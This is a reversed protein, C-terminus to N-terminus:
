KSEVVLTVAATTEFQVNNFKGRARLTCPHQGAPVGDAAAIELKGGDQGKNLTVNPATLGAVGQPPSLTLEVQDAFGYLREIKVPMEQKGGSKLGLSNKEPTLKLPSANVRLKIPTSILAFAVDKPQNAKKADDARKDCQTKLQNAEKLKEQAAKLAAENKAETASKIEDNIAKIMETIRKQEAEAAAVAEPNRTYKRKTEGKMYFTYSGPRINQQNLALEFKAEDKGADLTVDKPKMQQTLGMAVLKVADKFDGRRTIKIPLEVNGGLATEFVKDDGIKVLAPELEKDIVGLSMGPALRFEAPQQQRNPTGWVVTAYRAERAVERDGVKAKGIIKIPGAWASADEAAVFVLSGETVNGGLVAGACSVGPPLGEVTVSIEGDFEDRRQVVLNMATAGGKRVSVTALPTQLQQQQNAPPSTPHALMRFDPQPERIALRYVFSPDKRGDGFQDRVLLRYTGDEPVVFKYAPDDSSTDLEDINPNRRNTRDQPDDAQAVDSQKEQGKEDKTVRYLAFFPDSALGLQSSIVEIWYTQGKKADFEIWDLDREPYFQGALECPVAVKQALQPTNNPEQEVVVTPSKSYYIAVPNAPASAAPLRFELGDQWARALPSFGSLALKTRAAEDAPLTVNVPLKELPLGAAALGDAPKSGPLNRGYLTFQATTGAPASSPFVFEVFPGASATLRYFYDGGGGYVEDYLKLLYKGDAPATLDLVPDAGAGGKSRKLEHGSSDLVVLTGDLRSDIRRAAAELLVHEGKKMNLAFFDFTNADVRGSVTTGIPLDIAKDASANGATDATENLTGVTFSRPNSLGFRGHARVEYIGPPVDSAITVTFQNAIPRAPELPTAPSMKPTAKLGAHNFILKEVDDIDNGAITVDITTGQKGGPPFVSTLQTTPLQAYAALPLLVALAVFCHLSTLIQRMM